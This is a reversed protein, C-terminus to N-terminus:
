HGCLALPAQLLCCLHLVNGSCFTRSSLMAGDM